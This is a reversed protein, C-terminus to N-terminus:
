EPVANLVFVAALLASPRGFAAFWKRFIPDIGGGVYTYTLARNVELRFNSDGRPVAFALPEFSLDEALLALKEPLKSQSALGVLKIKDSAFADLSGSELMAVGENGDNLAVVTAGIGSEKLALALRAQTTTGRIVGIRKGNMDALKQIAAATSVLFGGAEVFILNSFDVSKMRTLTATTNACDLDAKGSAVSQVREAATGVVWNVKLDPVGVTRGLHALVQRCLDISYGAPQGDKEVFSFPPSDGSFAVNIQRAAKIRALADPTGQARAPTAVVAALAAVGLLGILFRNV